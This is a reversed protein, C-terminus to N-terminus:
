KINVDLFHVQEKSYESTFKVTSHFMNVQGRFVKLSEEGHEWIFFINDIYRLWIVPKKEICEPMKEEFDAMFLIVYTPAFKTGIAAGCKQKFTNELNM